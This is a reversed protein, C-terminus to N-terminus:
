EREKQAKIKEVLKENNKGFESNHLDTLHVVKINNDLKGTCIEYETIQLVFNSFIINLIVFLIICFVTLLILM